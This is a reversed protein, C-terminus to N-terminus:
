IGLHCLDLGTILDDGDIQPHILFEDQICCAATVIDNGYLIYLDGYGLRVARILVANLTSKAAAAGGNDAEGVIQDDFKQAIM